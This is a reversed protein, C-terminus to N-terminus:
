ICTVRTSEGHVYAGISGEDVRRLSGNAYQRRTM